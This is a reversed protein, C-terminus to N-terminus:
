PLAQALAQQEPEAPRGGTPGLFVGGRAGARGPNWGAEEDEEQKRRVM